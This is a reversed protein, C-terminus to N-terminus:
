FSDLLSSLQFVTKKLGDEGNRGTMGPESALLVFKHKEREKTRFFGVKVRGVGIRKGDEILFFLYSKGTKEDL